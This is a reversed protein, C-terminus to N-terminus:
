SCLAMFHPIFVIGGVIAAAIAALLVGGAAVDKVKGALPHYGPSVLDTLWEVATNMAEAMWVAGMSIVVAIWEGGSIDFFCGLGIVVATALLHVWANPQSSILWWIGKFAYGFSKVRGVFFGPKQDMFSPNTGFYFFSGLYDSECVM